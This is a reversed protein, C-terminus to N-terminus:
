NASLERRLWARAFTWEREITAVSKGVVAATEDNTLGGFFKLEVIRCKLEDIRGLKKLAEDLALVDLDQDQFFVTVADLPEKYQTGGRKLAYKMEAHNVLIRRMMTAAIGLFQERNDWNVNHQDKLRLYAEHVLATPQLTHDRRERNLYVQALRRLEAYILPFNENLADTGSRKLDKESNFNSEM